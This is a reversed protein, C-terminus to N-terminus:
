RTTNSTAMVRRMSCLTRVQCCRKSRQPIFQGRVAIDLGNIKARGVHGGVAHFPEKDALINGLKLIGVALLGAQPAIGVDLNEVGSFSAVACQM